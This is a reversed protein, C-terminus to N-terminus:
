QASGVTTRHLWRLHERTGSLELRRWLVSGPVAQSPHCRVADLQRGRDVEVVLDVDAHGRFDAGFEQALTAALPAPVTWALVDLDHRRGVLVAAATARVHDPHGTVGELDFALVGDAGVREASSAVHRAIEEVDVQDLAGDPLDLLDVHSVGLARAAAALERERVERLDGQVGHLTSAEGHTLCLVSVQAGHDVFSSILAGLGFSEDDPHAVVVLVSRWAPLAGSPHSVM